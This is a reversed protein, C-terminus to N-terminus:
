SEAIVILQDGQAYTVSESKSPNIVVGNAKDANDALALIKYGIPIEGRKSAADTITYFNVPVGTKVYDSVPKLYIESGEPDFLDKFVANLSKNESIQALLLGVLKDSVIFDNVKAVTALNRNKIDLMESVVSFIRGTKQTIDRLHLLTVLTKADAQQHDMDEYCVVIVHNYDEEALKDLVRRDTTDENVYKVAQNKVLGSCERKIIKDGEEFEAVVKIVSGQPVYADLERIITCVRYNWGLVLTKEPPRASGAKQAFSSADIKPEAKASLNIAADDEAIVVLRNGKALKTDMPPNLATTGDTKTIGIVTSSEYKNLADRFGLGALSPEERFYIEAGGFDLLETYVISLGPQRCTQAVIRSILDGVLVLEVEDKGVIQAIEMNRPDRIEAVINYPEKRRNPHSTIALITKIIDADPDAEGEQSILIISRSTNINAIELDGIEMPSGSRCVIRTRGKRPVKDRIEDEMEVKDKKGMVVICPKKQSANAEMIESLITFIQESWGLIITHRNEIVKSRGKRLDELKAELGSTLIGILASIVFVGGFTVALMSFLFPWSGEDGGMTGADLTRMLSMWVVNAFDAGEPALGSFIVVASVALIIVASIIFLWAILAPTGRSMVNDFSYRLKEGFTNGKM